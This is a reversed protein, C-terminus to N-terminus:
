KTSRRVVLHGQLTIRRPADDPYQLRLQMAHVISRGIATCPQHYTTLPVSLLAAYKVDDFGAVRLQKPIDVGADMLYRMLIAATADNACILADPQHNMLLKVSSPDLSVPLEQMILSDASLGAHQLAEHCGIFRLKVTMAPNARTTFVFKRCGQQILHSAVVYGAEINDIGILDFPTQGPWDVLDRDLLLVAIGAAELQKLLGTNFSMGDEIHEVPAFIVGAVKARIYDRCLREAIEKVNTLGGTGSPRLVNWHHRHGEDEIAQCIPEFIETEGLHPILLGIQTGRTLKSALLVTGFGARREIAGQARLMELAHAVTPRCASFRVTLEKESPLLEGEAYRGDTIEKKIADYIQQYKKPM